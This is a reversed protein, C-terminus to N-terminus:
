YRQTSPNRVHIILKYSHTFILTNHVIESVPLGENNTLIAQLDKVAKTRVQASASTSAVIMDQLNNGLQADQSGVFTKGDFIFTFLPQSTTYMSVTSLSVIAEEVALMLDDEKSGVEEVVKELITPHRQQINTLLRRAAIVDAAGDQGNDSLIHKLLITSM